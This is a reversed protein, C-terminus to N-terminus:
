TSFSPSLGEEIKDEEKVSSEAFSTESVRGTVEPSEFQAKASYSSKEEKQPIKKTM